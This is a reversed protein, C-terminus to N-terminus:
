MGPTNGHENRATAAALAAASNFLRDQVNCSSATPPPAPTAGPPGICAEFVQGVEKGSDNAIEQPTAGFIDRAAPDAARELLTTVVRHLLQRDPAALIGDRRPASGAASAMEHLPTYGQQDAAGPDAGAELLATILEPNLAHFESLALHLPTRRQANVRNVEAGNEALATIIATPTGCITAALHLPTDNQLHDPLNPNAGLELLVTITEPDGRLTARHLPTMGDTNTANVEAGAEILARIAPPACRPHFAYPGAALHLPTMYHEDRANVDAGLEILTTIAAADARAAARHLPTRRQHNIASPDAGAAILAAIRGTDGAIAAAHLPTDTNPAAPAENTTM